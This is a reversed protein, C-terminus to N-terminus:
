EVAECGYPRGSGEVLAGPGSRADQRQATAAGSSLISSCCRISPRSSSGSISNSSSPNGEEDKKVFRHTGEALSRRQSRYCSPYAFVYRPLPHPYPRPHPIPRHTIHSPLRTVPSIHTHSDPRARASRGFAAEVDVVLQFVRPVEIREVVEDELQGLYRAGKHQLRTTKDLTPADINLM